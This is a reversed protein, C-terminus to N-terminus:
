GRVRVQQCRMKKPPSFVGHKPLTEGINGAPCCLVVRKGRQRALAGRTKKPPKKKQWPRM